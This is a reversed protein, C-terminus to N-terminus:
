GSQVQGGKHGSVHLIFGFLEHLISEGLVENIVLLIGTRVRDRSKTAPEYQGRGTLASM